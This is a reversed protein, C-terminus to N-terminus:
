FQKAIVKRVSQLCYFFAVFGSFLESAMLPFAFLLIRPGRIWGSAKKIEDGPSDGGPIGGFFFCSGTLDCLCGSHSCCRWPSSIQSVSTVGSATLWIGRKDTLPSFVQGGTTAPLMWCKRPFHFCNVCSGLMKFATLPYLISKRREGTCNVMGIVIFKEAWSLAFTLALIDLNRSFPITTLLERSSPSNMELINRLGLFSPDKRIIRLKFSRLVKTRKWWKLISEM